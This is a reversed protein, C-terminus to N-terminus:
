NFHLAYRGCYQVPYPVYSRRTQSWKKSITGLTMMLKWAWVVELFSIKFGHVGNHILVKWESHKNYFLDNVKDYVKEFDFKLIV